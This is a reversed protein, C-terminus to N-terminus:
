WLYKTALAEHEAITSSPYFTGDKGYLFYYFKTTEPSQAAKISALGPNCIPGAPLGSVIYTNFVSKVSSFEATKASKWYSYDKAEELSLDAINNTDRGYEVTPDSQLKMSIKLRNNYIGAILGRDTDNAAEREVISALILEGDTLRLGDTRAEFNDTMMKVVDEGTMKPNFFYTDPFLKGEKGEAAVLFDQYSVIGEAELREAMQEMRWGEPFTVKMIKFDKSDIKKIVEITTMEPTFEYFGANIKKNYLITAWVFISEDNIAGAEKLQSAVDKKSTNNEIQVIVPDSLTNRSKFTKNYFDIGLITLILLLIVLSYIIYKTIKM